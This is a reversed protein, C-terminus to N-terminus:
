SFDYHSYDTVVPTLRQSANLIRMDKNVLKKEVWSGKMYSRPLKNSVKEQVRELDSKVPCGFLM